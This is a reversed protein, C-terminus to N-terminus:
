TAKRHVIVLATRRVGAKMKHAPGGRITRGMDQRTPVPPIDRVTKCVAGRFTDKLLAKPPFL